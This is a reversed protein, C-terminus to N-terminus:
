AAVRKWSKGNWHLIVAHPNDAGDTYSGVAWANSASRASVAALSSALGPEAPLSVSKWSAGTFRMIKAGGRLGVAWANKASTTAVGFVTSAGNATGLGAGKTVRKWSKGNWHLLASINATAHTIGVAWANSASSAAVGTLFTQFSSLGNFAVKWSKGNWHEILAKTCSCSGGDTGVAWANRSSTTVVGNLFSTEPNPSRVRKWSRGNFHLAITEDNGGSGVAWM